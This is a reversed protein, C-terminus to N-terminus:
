DNIGSPFHTNTFYRIEQGNSNNFIFPETEIFGLDRANNRLNRLLDIQSDYSNIHHITPFQTLPLSDFCLMTKIYEGNIKTNIPKIHTGAGIYIAILTM